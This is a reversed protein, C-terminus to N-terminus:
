THHLKPHSSFLSSEDTTVTTSNDLLIDYIGTSYDVSTVTGYINTPKYLVRSGVKFSPILLSSWSINLEDWSWIDRILELIIPMGIPTQYQLGTVPDIYAPQITNGM